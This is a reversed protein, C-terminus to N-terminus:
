FPDDFGAGGNPVDRNKGAAVADGDVDRKIARTQMAIQRSAPDPLQPSVCAAAQAADFVEAVNAPRDVADAGRLGNVRVGDSGGQGRQSGPLREAAVCSAGM